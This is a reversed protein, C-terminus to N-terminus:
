LLGYRTVVIIAVCLVVTIFLHRDSFLVGEPIGSEKRM